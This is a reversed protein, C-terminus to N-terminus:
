SVSCARASSRGATSATIRACRLGTWGATSRTSKAERLARDVMAATEAKLGPRDDAIRNAFGVMEVGDPISFTADGHRLIFYREGTKERVLDVLHLTEEVTDPNPHIFIADHEYREATM